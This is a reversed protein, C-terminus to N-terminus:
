LAAPNGSSGPRKPWTVRAVTSLDHGFTFAKGGIRMRPENSEGPVAETRAYLGGDKESFWCSVRRSWVLCCRKREERAVMSAWAEAEAMTTMSPPVARRFYVAPILRIVLYPTIPENVWKLWADFFERRDQEVLREVTTPDVALASAIRAFLEQSIQGTLEFQRIRNGNKLINSCGALRALQSPKLGKALRQAEFHRSLHTSM